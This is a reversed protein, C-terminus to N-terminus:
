GEEAITRPGAASREMNEDGVQWKDDDDPTETARHSDTRGREDRFDFTLNEESKEEARTENFPRALPNDEPINESEARAAPLPQSPPEATIPELTEPSDTSEARQDGPSAPKDSNLDQNAISVVPEPAEVKTAEDRIGAERELAAAAVSPDLKQAPTRRRPANETQEELVKDQRPEQARPEFSFVHGCRSCKFTPTGEPLVQEDIRYRTHCSSCQVEIM